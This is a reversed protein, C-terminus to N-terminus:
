AVFVPAAELEDPLPDDLLLGSQSLLTRLNGIVGPRWAPDLQLGMLTCGAAVFDEGPWAATPTAVAPGALFGRWGGFGSIDEAGAVGAAEALFGLCPGDELHVTGFGLPVPVQALLAGISATPLAWVEGAIAVGDATQLMGPRDGLRYLRYMPKTRVEAVFRGGLATVQGNLPM